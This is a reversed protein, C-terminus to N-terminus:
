LLPHTLHSRMGIIQQAMGATKASVQRCRTMELNKEKFEMTGEPTSIDCGLVGSCMTSGFEEKFRAVLHHTLTYITTKDDSADDRGYLLGLATIGGMLAGCMGGARGMGGGFGSVMRSLDDTNEGNQAALALLVSESCFYGKGFLHEATQRARQVCDEPIEQPAM